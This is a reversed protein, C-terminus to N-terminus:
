RRRSRRGRDAHGMAGDARADAGCRDARAADAARVFHHLQSLARGLDYPWCCQRRPCLWARNGARPPLHQAPTAATAAAARGFPADDGPQKGGHRRRACHADLRRPEPRVRRGARRDPARPRRAHAARLGAPSPDGGGRHGGALCPAPLVGLRSRYRRVQTCAPAACSAAGRHRHQPQHLRGYQTCPATYVAGQVWYITTTHKCVFSQTPTSRQKGAQRVLLTDTRRDYRNTQAQRTLSFSSEPGSATKQSRNRIAMQRWKM